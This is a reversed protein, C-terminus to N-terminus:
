VNGPDWKALQLSYAVSFSTLIDFHSRFLETDFHSCWGDQSACLKRLSDIDRLAAGLRVYANSSLPGELELEM